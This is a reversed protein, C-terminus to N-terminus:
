KASPAQSSIQRRILDSDTMGACSQMSAPPLAVCSCNGLRSDLPQTFLHLSLVTLSFYAAALDGNERPHCKKRPHCKERFAM